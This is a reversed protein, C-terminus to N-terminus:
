RGDKKMGSWGYIMSLKSMPFLSNSDIPKCWSEAEPYVKVLQKYTKLRAKIYKCHETMIKEGRGKGWFLFVTVSSPKPYDTTTIVEHHSANAGQPDYTAAHDYPWIGRV